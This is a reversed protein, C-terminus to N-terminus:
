FTLDLGFAIQKTNPNVGYTLNSDVEPDPGSYKTFTLLNRGTVYAKVGKIVRTKSLIGSPLNYGVTAAKMRMFSADELVRSDFETWVQVGAKPNRAIDGPQKWYDLVNKSQNFGPFQYPNNFFYADNNILYKGKSFSFDVSAFFGKYGSTFGFGGNFPPYRKIGTNQILNAEVFTPTVSSPDKKTTVRDDVKANPLYWEPLGTQPNIQHFIPMYFSVPQGVPWTVYTNPIIWYAKDQFLETVENRNYNFNIYPTIFADRSKLVDVDFTVDFGTNKLAGVNSTISAFGSTYPFPVDILMNETTRNYYEINFRARNFLSFNIGVTAKTQEEWGLLPNGPTSVNWGSAGAYNTTSVLAQSEYNGIASNGSTGYSAKLTLDTLWKLGNFFKEEKAKWMAGVAYFNATRNDRGFRSSQDQRYSGDVYYRNKWNYELRSFYSLFSYETLSSGATRGSSSSSVLVLRDDTQGTSGASIGKTQSEIFEQGVLATFNHDSAVTFKYEGTNTITKTLGRSLAESASGSPTAPTLSPLTVGSTIFDFGEIGARSIINLNRIPTIQIFGSPNFQVNRRTEQVKDALFKPSNRGWGPINGYYEKGTAPDIPTYWPAALPALGRNTSNTGYPNLQREDSSFFMNLGLRFWDTVTTNLNSRLTYRKYGSRYALGEQKLYSGSIFYSTRGGGGSISLDAQYMPVNDQYYVKYWKTDYGPFDRNIQDIQAQTRIGTALYFDTLEKRNMLQEYFDTNALNSIGYQQQLTITAPRNASGRKTTIYIVGNAARAGYISTASADKLVSVTEFDNPNLSIVTGPDIPIGDMVYLPTSSAGLSGTGHLRLSSTQSPEGNSTFVQLGAVKGQLADFANATPRDQIREANVTAVSGVVTGIRRGTGYGVVVVEAMNQDAATLTTNITNDTGINVEKGAAGVSTFVITKANAPLTMTYEGQENTTTGTNQGKVQVSVNPMPRGADDTVRGKITRNQALLQMYSMLMCLMLMLFKGM